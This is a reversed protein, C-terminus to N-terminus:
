VAPPPSRFSMRELAAAALSAASDIVPAVTRAESAVLPIETCGGIIVEAGGAVLECVARTVLRTAISRGAGSKVAAIATDVLTRQASETVNCIEIGYPAAAQEYILAQRTGRTALLGLRKPQWALATAIAATPLDLFEAGSQRRVEPLYAHATNCPVAILEAGAAQLWRAGAVLSPVPSAGGDMLAATRDPVRPDAWIAVPLHEQDACAPTLEILMRYFHATALPGM